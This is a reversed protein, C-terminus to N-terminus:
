GHRAAVAEEATEDASRRRSVLLVLLCGLGVLAAGLQALMRVAGAGTMPLPPGGGDDQFPLDPIQVDIVSSLVGNGCRVEVLVEGAAELPVRFDASFSGSADVDAQGVVIGDIVVDVQGPAPQCGTVAVNVLDGPAVTPPTVVITGPPDYGQGAAPAAALLPLVVAAIILSRM